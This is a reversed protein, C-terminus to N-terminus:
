FFSEQCRPHDYITFFNLYDLIPSSDFDQRIEKEEVTELFMKKLPMQFQHLVNHTMGTKFFFRFERVKLNVLVIKSSIQLM